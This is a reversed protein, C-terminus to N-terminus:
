FSLLNQIHCYLYAKNTVLYDVCIVSCMLLHNKNFTHKWFCGNETSQLTFFFFVWVEKGKCVSYALNSFPRNTYRIFREGIHSYIILKMWLSLCRGSFYIIFLTKSFKVMKNTINTERRTQWQCDTRLSAPCLSSPTHPLYYPNSLSSPYSEPPSGALLSSSYQPKPEFVPGGTVQTWFLSLLFHHGLSRQVTVASNLSTAGIGQNQILQWLWLSKNEFCTWLINQLPKWGFPWFALSFSLLTKRPPQRPWRHHSPVRFPQWTIRHSSRLAQPNVEPIAMGPM